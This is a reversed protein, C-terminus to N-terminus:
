RNGLDAAPASHDNETRGMLRAEIEKHIVRLWEEARSARDEAREVEGELQDIRDAAARGGRDEAREIETRWQNAVAQLRSVIANGTQDAGGGSQDVGRSPWSRKPAYQLVPDLAERPPRPGGGRLSPRDRSARAKRGPLGALHASAADGAIWHELLRFQLFVDEMWDRLVDCTTEAVGDPTSQWLEALEFARQEVLARQPFGLLPIDLSRPASTASRSEDMLERRATRNDVPLLSAEHFSGSLRAYADASKPDSDVVFLILPEIAHRRAEEFFGIEDVVTFFRQFARYSVDVVTAAGDNAIMQDFLAMQGPTDGIDAITTLAPLYDAFQPGEDALDFAAV